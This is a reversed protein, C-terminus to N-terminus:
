LPVDDPNVEERTEKFPDEGLFLQSVDISMHRYAGLIEVSADKAPKPQIQYETELKEGSRTIVIDYKTPSGWDKDKALATIAKQISKQTIELIQVQEEQYNWVPLAWFHKVKENEEIDGLSIKEDMRKRVPMRTGDEKTVWYEWGKIATGESFTGLIRIRNEGNKFKMYGSAKEPVQYNTDDFFDSMNNKRIALMAIVSM